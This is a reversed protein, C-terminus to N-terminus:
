TSTVNLSQLANHSMWQYKRTRYPIYLTNYCKLSLITVSGTYISQRNFSFPNYKSQHYKLGDSDTLTLM